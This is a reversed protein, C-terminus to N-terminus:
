FKYASMKRKMRKLNRFQGEVVHVAALALSKALLMGTCAHEFALESIMELQESSLYHVQEAVIDEGYACLHAIIFQRDALVRGKQAHQNM